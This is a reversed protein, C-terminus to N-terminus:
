IGTIRAADLLSNPFQLKDIHETARYRLWDAPRNGSKGFPKSVTENKKHM